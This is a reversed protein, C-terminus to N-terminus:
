FSAAANFVGATVTLHPPTTGRQICTSLKKDPLVAFPMKIRSTIYEQAICMRLTILGLRDGQKVVHTYM